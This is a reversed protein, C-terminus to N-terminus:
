AGQPSPFKDKYLLVVDDNFSVIKHGKRPRFRILAFDATDGEERCLRIGRAPVSVAM